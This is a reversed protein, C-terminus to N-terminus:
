CYKKWWIVFYFIGLTIIFLSIKIKHSLNCFFSAQAFSEEISKYKDVSLDKLFLEKLFDFDYSKYLEYLDRLSHRKLKYFKTRSAFLMQLTDKDKKYLNDRNENIINVYAFWMDEVNFYIQALISPLYNKQVTFYLLFLVFVFVFYVIVFIM